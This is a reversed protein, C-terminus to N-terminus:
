GKSPKRSLSNPMSDLFKKRLFRKDMMGKLAKLDKRAMRLMLKAQKLDNM